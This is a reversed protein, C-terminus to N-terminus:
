NKGTQTYQWLSFSANWHRKSNLFYNSRLLVSKLTNKGSFFGIQFIKDEAVAYEYTTM